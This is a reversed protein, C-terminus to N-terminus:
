QNETILETANYGQIKLKGETKGAGAEPSIWEPQVGTPETYRLVSPKGAATGNKLEPEIVSGSFVVNLLVTEDFECKYRVKAGATRDRAKGSVEALESQWPLGESTVQIEVPCTSSCEYASSAQTADKGAGGGLPNEVYGGIVDKCEVKGGASEFALTGWTVTPVKEGEPTLVGNSYWHHPTAQAAAPTVAFAAAALLPALSIVLKKKV